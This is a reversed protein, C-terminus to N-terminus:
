SLRPEREREDIRGGLAQKAKRPEHGIVAGFELGTVAAEQNTRRRRDAAQDLDAAEADPRPRERRTPSSAHPPTGRAGTAGATGPGSTRSFVSSPTESGRM